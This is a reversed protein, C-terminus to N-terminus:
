KARVAAETVKVTLVTLSLAPFRYDFKGTPMAFKSQEATIRDPEAFSNTVDPEGARHRDTLTWVAIEQASKTFATFDLPRVIDELGPNVAFFVVANGRVGQGEGARPLPTLTASCDPATNAPIASDIRLAHTGALTAYLQQAYYTPTLYIRHNDTQVIGSCFSNTLNSRNAITVADAHRHLVNHYRSCSLANELTWLRARKPGADGATTNWETVAIKIDRMPAAKRCLAQVTLINQETAALNAIDYHHPCVFDIVHGAQRLIGESPYSGLIRISPDVKKMAEAFAAVRSEYDRGGQENGIQWLEVHYPEAHGNKARLKGMPTDAAGNFYEVEDAADQPTRQTVRVCLLPEAGVRHCFQVIEELGPGTPQLGGWARFPKRRDPDGVTDRWEFDGLNRDDLASGGFRIVGPKLAKVAQVVDPRWGGVNDEPMLSANDIWLTGPGRFDIILTVNDCTQSPVIRAKYKHWEGTPQFECKALVDNEHMLRVRVPGAVGEHQLYCSFTSARDKGAFIGDQAIGVTCPAGGPVAIKQSVAGSVPNNPDRTYEARNVAGAPYWPKERFDRDRLFVFKYPTLGEFSGDYLQEAWMSPILDCLYEMFQGYQYPSIEAQQLLDRTVILPSAAPNIEELKLDDFWAAGTGKGFGVFFVSIRTLGGPPAQFVIPVETWDTDGDHNGGTALIGKGGPLQVQFTGFVPAGHPDLGRTRVWGTLRYWHHAKLLVEQGLATDSLEAATIRLSQKGEHKTQTDFELQPKAGFFHITWHDTANEFGANRLTASAVPQERGTVLAGALWPVLVAWSVMSLCRMIPM